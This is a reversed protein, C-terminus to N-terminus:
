RRRPPPPPEATAADPLVTGAAQAGEAANPTAPTPAGTGGAQTQAAAAEPDYPAQPDAQPATPDLETLPTSDDVRELVNRFAQFEANTPEIVSGAPFEQRDYQPHAPDSGERQKLRTFATTIRYRAM